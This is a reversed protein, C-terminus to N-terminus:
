LIFKLVIKKFKIWYIFNVIMEIDLSHFDSIITETYYKSFEKNIIIKITLMM